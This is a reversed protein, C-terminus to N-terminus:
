IPLDNEEKIEIEIKEGCFPCFNIPTADFADGNLIPYYLNVNRDKNTAMGFKEGFGIICGWEEQMAACCIVTKYEYKRINEIDGKHKPFPGQVDEKYREIGAYVKMEEKEEKEKPRFTM